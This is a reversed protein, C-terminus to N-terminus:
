VCTGNQLDSVNLNDNKGLGALMQFEDGSYILFWFENSEKFLANSQRFYARKCTNALKTIAPSKM